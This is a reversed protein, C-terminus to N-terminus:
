ERVTNNKEYREARAVEEVRLDKRLSFLARLGRALRLNSKEELFVFTRNKGIKRFECFACRPM